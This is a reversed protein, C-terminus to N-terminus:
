GTSFMGTTSLLTFLLRDRDKHRPIARLVANVHGTLM